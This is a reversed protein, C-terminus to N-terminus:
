RRDVGAARAARPLRSRRARRVQACSVTLLALVSAVTGSSDPSGEAGRAAIACGGKATTAYESRWVDAAIPITKSTVIPEGDFTAGFTMASGGLGATPKVTFVWLGPAERVLPPLPQAAGDLLLVPRLRSPDFLDARHTGDATRLELIATLPTSGDAAIYDASLTIWSSAAVPLILAPNTTQDLADLAGLVDLEGPGSQDDFPHPGRFPHEGAQLLSVIKDQTLTPDRQFLLAIAGAVMPASMSTGQAIADHADIQLCRPDSQGDAATCTATFISNAGGPLAESSMAGIVIGGPAAIEPKPVGTLTPGASSFWCVEGETVSRLSVQGNSDLVPEGGVADLVPESLSQMSGGISTWSTRNTTCGVAVISPNTAPLNITGERVPSVFGAGSPEPGVFVDGEGELYLDATGEGELTVAYTGSPWAGSVVVVAGSSDAPVPSKSASSGNIVGAAYASTNKGAEKGNAVPSIWTGGPGDLGVSLSAGSRMAIWVELSGNKAGQTYIPVTMRSGKSVEVSEHVPASAIDGSNGASAVLAHGPFNPGVYGALAQEWDLTGDHPGFDSGLSLNVAVPKGLFDARDFLFQVCRVLDDNIIADTADRTVRAFLITAQPAVGIYETQGGNGAAISTVHTGHGVDDGPLQMGAATLAAFDSGQYVAGWQKGSNDTYGYKQELDPYKGYAPVSLDLLWAVRSNGSADLFDPHTVDLGTDAVGILAGSGNAGQQRALLAGTWIGARDLLTHLPPAVEVQLSPHALSFSQIAAEGGRLRGIGPVVPELGLSPATAGPPLSVLAALTSTTGDPSLMRGARSGLVRLLSAADPHGAASARYPGLLACVAVAFALSRCHM